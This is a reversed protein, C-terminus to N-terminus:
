FDIKPYHYIIPFCLILLRWPAHDWKSIKNGEPSIRLCIAFNDLIAGFNQRKQVAL